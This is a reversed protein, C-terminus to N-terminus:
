RSGGLTAADDQGDGLLDHMRARMRNLRSSVTGIPLSLAEAVEQYSLEAWAHLLLTELEAAPLDALAAALQRRLAAADAREEVGDLEDLGGGRDIRDYARLRRRFERLHERMLNAAIGFLWPRATAKALDFSSRRDFAILFTQSALDDAMDTGVHRQLYRHIHDFHRNFIEGFASPSLFSDAIVVNDARPVPLNKKKLM